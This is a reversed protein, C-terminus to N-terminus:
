GAFSKGLRDASFRALRSDLVGAQRHGMAERYTPNKMMDLFAQVSPYEAVFAIDWIENHSGVMTLEHGGRWVIKGGLEQFVPASMDSYVQYADAGTCARGDSYDAEERLRIFNLMHIPGPRQDEKFKEWTEKSFSTHFESDSM